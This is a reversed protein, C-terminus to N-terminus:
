QNIPSDIPNDVLEVDPLGQERALADLIAGIQTVALVRDVGLRSIRHHLMSDRMEQLPVGWQLALSILICADHNTNVTKTGRANDPEYVVEGIAQGNPLSSFNIRLREHFEQQTNPDWVHTVEISHAERRNPLRQRTM